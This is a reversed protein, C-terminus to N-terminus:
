RTSDNNDPRQSRLQESQIKFVHRVIADRDAERLKIFVLAIEHHPTGEIPKCDVVRGHALLGVCEPVLVIELKLLQDIPHPDVSKFRIGGGSIDVERLEDKNGSLSEIVFRTLLEMKKNMNILYNGLQSQKDTLSGLYNQNETELRSLEQLLSIRPSSKFGFDDLDQNDQDEDIKEFNIIIWNKIRFYERRENQNNNDTM